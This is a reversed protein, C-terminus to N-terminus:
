VLSVELSVEVVVEVIAEKALELVEVEEGEVKFRLIFFLLRRWIREYRM